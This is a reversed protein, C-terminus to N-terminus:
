DSKAQTLDINFGPKDTKGQLWSYNSDLFTNVNKQILSPSFASEAAQKVASDSLSVGGSQDDGATKDAQDIATGVFSGYFGSQSLWKEIKKPHSLALNTSVSFALSLLSIFLVCSFVVVGFKRM